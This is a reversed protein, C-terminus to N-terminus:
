PRMFEKFESLSRRNTFKSWVPDESCQQMLEDPLYLTANTYVNQEFANDAALHPLKSQIVVTKIDKCHAFAYEYVYPGKEFIVTQLKTCYYFACPDVSYCAGIQAKQLNVANSLLTSEIPIYLPTRVASVKEAIASSNIELVYIDGGRYGFAEIYDPIYVDGSYSEPPEKDTPNYYNEQNPTVLWLGNYIAPIIEGEPTIFTEEDKPNLIFGLQRLSRLRIPTLDIPSYDQTLWFYRLGHVTREPYTYQYYALCQNPFAMLLLCTICLAYHIRKNM